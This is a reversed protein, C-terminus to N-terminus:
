LEELWELIDKSLQHNKRLILFAYFALANKADDDKDPRLVFCDDVIEGNPKEVNFKHYLGRSTMKYDEM